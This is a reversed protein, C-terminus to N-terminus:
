YPFPNDDNFQPERLAPSRHIITFRGQGQNLFRNLGAPIPVNRTMVVESGTIEVAAQPAVAGAANLAQSEGKVAYTRAATFGAFVSREQAIFVQVFQMFIAFFLFLAMLAFAFEVAAAGTQHNLGPTRLCVNKCFVLQKKM